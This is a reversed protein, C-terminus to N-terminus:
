LSLHSLDFISLLCFTPFSKWTVISGVVIKVVNESSDDNVLFTRYTCDSPVMSIVSTDFVRVQQQTIANRKEVKASENVSEEDSRPEAALKGAACARNFRLPM